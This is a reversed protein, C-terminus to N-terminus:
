RLRHQIAVALRAMRTDRAHARADLEEVSAIAFHLSEGPRLQALRPLDTTAVHGIRPYGGASGCDGMLVIPRGDPPLQVTGPLVPESPYTWPAALQLQPGHLRLGIRNSDTSVQWPHQLLTRMAVDTLSASAPLLTAVAPRSLDLDPAPNIWWRAVVATGTANPATATAGVRLTDGARLARGHHGGFGGRLDTSRSGLVEPVDIGGEFALYARAGRRCAGLVLETGAPLWLPRWGPLVVGDVRADIDAGTIAVCAPQQLRLKPGALTFELLAADPPNGLLLNALTASHADLAGSSGVGLARYGFRGQDQVTTCPGGAVVQVAGTTM